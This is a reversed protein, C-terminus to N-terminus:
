ELVVLDAQPMEPAAEEVAAAPIQLVLVVLLPQHFDAVTELVAIQLAAAALDVLATM